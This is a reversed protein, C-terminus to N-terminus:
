STRSSLKCSFVFKEADTMTKPRNRGLCAFLIPDALSNPCFLLTVKPCLPLTTMRHISICFVSMCGAEQMSFVFCVACVWVGNSVVITAM